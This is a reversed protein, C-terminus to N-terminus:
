SLSVISGVFERHDDVGGAGRAPRLAGHQGMVVQNRIRPRQDVTPPERVLVYQHMRQGDEVHVAQEHGVM